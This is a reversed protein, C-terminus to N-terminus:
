RLSCPTPAGIGRAKFRKLDDQMAADRGEQIRDLLWNACDLKASLETRLAVIEDTPAALDYVNLGRRIQFASYVDAVAIVALLAVAIAALLKM